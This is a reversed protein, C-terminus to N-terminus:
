TSSNNLLAIVRKAGVDRACDLATQGTEDKLSKDAGYRLLLQVGEVDDNYAAMHMATQGGVEYTVNPSLSEDGMGDQGKLFKEAETFDMQSMLSLFTQSREVDSNAEMFAQEDTQDGLDMTGVYGNETKTTVIFHGSKNLVNARCITCRERVAPSLLAREIICSRHFHHGCRLQVDDIVYSPESPDADNNSDLLSENCITCKNETHVPLKPSPFPM